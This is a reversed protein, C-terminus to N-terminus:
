HKRRTGHRMAIVWEVDKDKNEERKGDAKLYYPEIVAELASWPVLQELDALLCDRRTQKKKSSFQASAFSLQM